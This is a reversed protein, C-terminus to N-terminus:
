RRDTFTDPFPFTDREASARVSSREISRDISRDIWKSISFLRAYNRKAIAEDAIV